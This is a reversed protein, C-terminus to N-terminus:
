MLSFRVKFINVDQRRILFWYVPVYYIAYGRRVFFNPASLSDMKVIMNLIM